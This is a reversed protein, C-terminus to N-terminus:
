AESALLNGMIIKKILEVCRAFELSWAGHLSIKESSNWAGHLSKETIMM